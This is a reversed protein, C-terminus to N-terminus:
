ITWLAHGAKANMQMAIKSAVSMNGKQNASLLKKKSFQCPCNFELAVFKKLDNYFREENPKVFFYIMDIKGKM